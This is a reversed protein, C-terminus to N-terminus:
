LPWAGIPKSRLLPPSGGCEMHTTAVARDHLTSFIHPFEAVRLKSM